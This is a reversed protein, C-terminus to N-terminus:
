ERTAMLRRNLRGESPGSRGRGSGPARPQTKRRRRAGARALNTTTVIAPKRDDNDPSRLDRAQALPAAESLLAPAAYIKRRKTDDPSQDNCRIGRVVRPIELAVRKRKGTPRKYRYRATVIHDM